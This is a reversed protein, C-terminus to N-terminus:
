PQMCVKFRYAGSWVSWVEHQADLGSYAQFTVSCGSGGCIQNRLILVHSLLGGIIGM